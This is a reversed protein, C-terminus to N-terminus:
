TSADADEGAHEGEDPPLSEVVDAPLPTRLPLGALIATVGKGEVVVDPRTAQKPAKRKGTPKKAEQDIKKLSYVPEPTVVCGGYVPTAVRVVRIHGQTKKEKAFELAQEPSAFGDEIQFWIDLNEASKDGYVELAYNAPKKTRVKTEESM